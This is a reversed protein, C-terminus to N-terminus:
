QVNLTVAANVPTTGNPTTVQVTRPGTAAALSLTVNATVTTSNVATVGTVLIGTSNSFTVGTAGQLDVGTITVQFPLAGRAHATPNIGTVAPGLVTFVRSTTTGGPTTVTVNRNGLAASTGTAITFTATVTQANVYVVNSVTVGGGSVAVTTAGNLNTGTLTVNVANGRYGSNPAISNLRPGVVSFSVPNTTGAPTTVTVNKNTLTAGAGITFTATIQTPSVLAVNSVAINSDGPNVTAPATLNNGALTVNVQTGRLGSSPDIRTLTPGLVTFTVLPPPPTTNSTGALTTVTVIHQGLMTAPAMNLTATVTTANVAVVNTFTMNPSGPANVSTTSLLNTGTLTVNVSTGRLGSNPAISTLTPPLQEASNPVEIAGIDMSSGAADPRPNGFFDTTPALAYTPSTSQIADVAPSTAALAYNGLTAGTVPNTM